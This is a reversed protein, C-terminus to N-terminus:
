LSQETVEFHSRCLDYIVKFEDWSKQLTPFKECMEGMKIADIKYRNFWEYQNDLHTPTVSDIMEHLIDNSM